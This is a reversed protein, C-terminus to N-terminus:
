TKKPEVVARYYGSGAANGTGHFTLKYYGTVVKDKVDISDISFDANVLVNGIVVWNCYFNELQVAATNNERAVVRGAVKGCLPSIADVTADLFADFSLGDDAQRQSQIDMGKVFLTLPLLLGGVGTATVGRSEPKCRKSAPEADCLKVTYPPTMSGFLAGIAQRADTGPADITLRPQDVFQGTTGCGSLVPFLLAFGIKRGLTKV